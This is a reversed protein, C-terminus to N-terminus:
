KYMDPYYFRNFKIRDIKWVGAKIYCRYASFIKSYDLSIGSRKNAEKIKVTDWHCITSIEYNSFTQKTSIRFKSVSDQYSIMHKKDWICGKFTSSQGDYSELIFLTDKHIDTTLFGNKNSSYVKILLSKYYSNHSILYIKNILQPFTPSITWVTLIFNLIIFYILKNM